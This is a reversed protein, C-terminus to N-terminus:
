ILAGAKSSRLGVILLIFWFIYVHFLVSQSSDREVAFHVALLCRKM